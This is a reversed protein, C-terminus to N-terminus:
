SKANQRISMKLIAQANRFIDLKLYKGYIEKYKIRHKKREEKSPTGPNGPRKKAVIKEAVRLVALLPM